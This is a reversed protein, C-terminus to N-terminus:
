TGFLNPFLYIVGTIIGALLLLWGLLRFFSLSFVKSGHKTHSQTGEALAQTNSSPYGQEQYWWARRCYLYPGLDSAKVTKM